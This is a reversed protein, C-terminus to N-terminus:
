QRRRRAVQGLRLWDDGRHRFAMDTPAHTGRSDGRGWDLNYSSMRYESGRDLGLAKVGPRRRRFLLRVDARRVATGTPVGSLVSIRRRAHRCTWTPMACRAVGAGPGRAALSGGSSVELADGAELCRGLAQQVSEVSAM